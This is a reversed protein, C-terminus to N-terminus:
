RLFIQTPSVALVSAAALACPSSSLAGEEECKALWVYMVAQQVGSSEWPLALRTGELSEAALFPPGFLWRSLPSPWSSWVQLLWLQNRCSTPLLSLLSPARLLWLWSPLCVACQSCSSGAFIAGALCDAWGM